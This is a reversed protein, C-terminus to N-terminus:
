YLVENVSQTESHVTTATNLLQNATDEVSQELDKAESISSNAIKFNSEAASVHQAVEAATREVQLQKSILNWTM